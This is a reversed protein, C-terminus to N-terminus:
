RLPTVGAAEAKPAMLRLLKPRALGARERMMLEFFGAFVAALSLGFMGAESTPVLQGFSNLHEQRYLVFHGCYLFFGIWALWRMARFFLWMAIAANM